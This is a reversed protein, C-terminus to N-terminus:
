AGRHASPALSRGGLLDSRRHVVCWCVASLWNQRCTPAFGLALGSFGIYSLVWDFPLFM